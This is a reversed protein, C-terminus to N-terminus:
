VRKIGFMEIQTARIAGGSGVDTIRRLAAQWLGVLKEGLTKGLRFSHPYVLVQRLDEKEAVGLPLMDGSTSHYISLEPDFDFRPFLYRIAAPTFRWYDSPYAHIKWAFPVSIALTAGPNLFHDVNKAFAFIDGVHEMTSMSICTNFREGALAKELFALDRTMDLIVDVGAGEEMDVGVYRVGAPFIERYDHFDDSDDYRKSGIEIVPGKMNRSLGSLWNKQYIDGM